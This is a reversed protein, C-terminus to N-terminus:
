SVKLEWHVLSSRHKTWSDLLHYRFRQELMLVAAAGFLIDPGLHPQTDILGAILRDRAIQAHRPNVDVYVDCFQRGEPAVGFRGLAEGLHAMPEATTM